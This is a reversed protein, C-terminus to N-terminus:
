ENQKKGKYIVKTEMMGMLVAKIEGELQGSAVFLKGSATVDM